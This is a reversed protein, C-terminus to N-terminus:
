GSYTWKAKCNSCEAFTTSSEDCGRTQKSYSFVKRSGCKRCEFIGEEIEMPNKIFQNVEHFDRAIKDFFVHNWGYRKRKLDNGIQIVNRKKTILDHVVQSMILDFQRDNSSMKGILRLITEINKESKLLNSLINKGQTKMTKNGFNWKLISFSKSFSKWYKWLYHCIFLRFPM